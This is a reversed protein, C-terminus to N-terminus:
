RPNPGIRPESYRPVAVADPPATAWSPLKIGVECTGALEPTYRMELLGLVNATDFKVLNRLPEVDVPYSGGIMIVSPKADITPWQLLWQDDRKTLLVPADSFLRLPGLLNSAFASNEVLPWTLGFLGRRIGIVPELFDRDARLFGARRQWISQGREAALGAQFMAATLRREPEPCLAGAIAALAAARRAKDPDKVSPLWTSSDQVWALSTLLSNAESAPKATSSIAQMLLSHASALDLDLGTGDFPLKQHTHPEEVYTAQSLYESLTAEASKKTLVDRGATLCELALEVVGQLDQPAVTGIPQPLSTGVSLSRGAPVRRIPFRVSIENTTALTAPGNADVIDTRKVESLLKIPYGGLQAFQAGLPLVAGPRDFRWTGQVSTLDSTIDLKQLVPPMSSWIDAQEAM